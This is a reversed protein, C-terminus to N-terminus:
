HSRVAAVVSCISPNDLFGIVSATLDCLLAVQLTESVVCMNSVIMWLCVPEASLWM